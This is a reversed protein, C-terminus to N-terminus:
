QDKDSNEIKRIYRIIIKGEKFVNSISLIFTSVQYGVIKWSGRRIEGGKAIVEIGEYFFKDQYPLKQRSFYRRKFLGIYDRFESKYNVIKQNIRMNEALVCAGFLLLIEFKNKPFKKSTCINNTKSPHQLLIGEIILLPALM